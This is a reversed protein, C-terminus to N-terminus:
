KRGNKKERRRAREMKAASARAEARLKLYSTLRDPDIDGSKAARILACGPENTHTCDRFRCESELSSIDSFASDVGGASDWLGLDRMGPTDIVMVGSDLMILQRHTTTHRGHADDERIASTKMLQAGGLANTLTSKGVGSSGVLAVTMGPAAYRKLADLGEGTVSSIPIVPVDGAVAKASAILPEPDTCLDLKTLVVATQAGCESAQAIYRELRRPNLESNLSTAILITDFNAAVAQAKGTWSDTRVFASKRPLLERIVSDGAPNYTIRVFDGVTPVDDFVQGRRLYGYCAGEASILEYRDRHAALIRAPIDGGSFTLTGRYGYETIDIM